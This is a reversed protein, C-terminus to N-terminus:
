LQTCPQLALEVRRIRQKPELVDSAMGTAVAAGFGTAMALDVVQSAGAACPGPEMASSKALGAASDPVSHVVARAPSKVQLHPLRSKGKAM